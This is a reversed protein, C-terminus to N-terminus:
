PTDRPFGCSLQAFRCLPFTLSGNFLGDPADYVGVRNWQGHATIAAHGKGLKPGRMSVVRVQDDQMDIGMGVGPGPVVAGGCGAGCESM